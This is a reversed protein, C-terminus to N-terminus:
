LGALRQAAAVAIPLTRGDDNAPTYTAITAAAIEFRESVLALLDDLQAASLGGRVPPDVVASGVSPDLADLDLHVYVRGARGALAGLTADVSGAASGHRWPVVQVSSRALREAEEQPSLARVGVLAVNEPAVPQWDLAAWVAEGCDGVVVALTM